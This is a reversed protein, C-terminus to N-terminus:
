EHKVFRLVEVRQSKDMIRVNYMGSPFQSVDIGTAPFYSTTSLWQRGLADSISVSNIGTHKLYITGTAPNPYLMAATQVAPGNISLPVSCSDVYDSGIWKGIRNFSSDGSISYFSGGVYLNDGLVGIALAQGYWEDGLTNDVSCWQPRGM